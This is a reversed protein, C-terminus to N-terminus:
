YHFYYMCIKLTKNEYCAFMVWMTDLRVLFCLNKLMNFLRNVLETVGTQRQGVGSVWHGWCCQRGWWFAHTPVDELGVDDVLRSSLLYNRSRDLSLSIGCSTFAGRNMGEEVAEWTISIWNIIQQRTPQIYNGRENRKATQFWDCWQQKIREKFVKNMHIWQSYLVWAM